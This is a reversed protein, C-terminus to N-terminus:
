LVPQRTALAIALYFQVGGGGGGRCYVQQEMCNKETSLALLCCYSRKNNWAPNRIRSSNVRIRGKLIFFFFFVKDLDSERFVVRSRFQCLSIWEWKTRYLLWYFQYIIKTSWPLAPYRIRISRSPDSRCSFRIRCNHFLGPYSARFLDPDTVRTRLDPIAKM